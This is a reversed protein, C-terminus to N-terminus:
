AIVREAHVFRHPVRRSAVLEATERAETLAGPVPCAEVCKLCGKCYQYDIGVLRQAPRGKKDTGQEWVFCYDPCVFDCQGCDICKERDFVPVFGERSASLDKLMSNGPDAVVGGLPANLYGWKPAPRHYPKGEGTGDGLTKLELEEYGRDFSRLNREVLHPYKREFTSRIVAKVAEPDIFGSARTLAGMM